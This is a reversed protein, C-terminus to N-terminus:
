PNRGIARWSRCATSDYNLVRSEAFPSWPQVPRSDSMLALLTGLAKAAALRNRPVPGPSLESPSGNCSWTELPLLLRTGASLNRTPETRGRGRGWGRGIRDFVVPRLSTHIHRPWAARGPWNRHLLLSIRPDINAPLFDYLSLIFGAATDRAMPTARRRAPERKGARRIV